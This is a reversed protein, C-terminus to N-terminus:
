REITLRRPNPLSGPTDTERPLTEARARAAEAQGSRHLAALLDALREWDHRSDPDQALAARRARVAAELDGKAIYAESVTAWLGRTPGAEALGRLATLFGDRGRGRKILQEALVRYAM